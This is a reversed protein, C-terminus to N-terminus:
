GSRLTCLRQSTTPQTTPLAINRVVLLIGRMYNQIRRIKCALMALLTHEPSRRVQSHWGAMRGAGIKKQGLHHVGREGHGAPLFWFCLAVWGIM